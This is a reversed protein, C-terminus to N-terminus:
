VNSLVFKRVDGFASPWIYAERIQAFTRLEGCHSNRLSTHYAQIIQPRLSKPAVTQWVVSSHRGKGKIWVKMLIGEHVAYNAQNDSAWEEEATDQYDGEEHRQIAGKIKCVYEDDEQARQMEAKTSLTYIAPMQWGVASSALKYTEIIEPDDDEEAEYDSDPEYTGNEMDESIQQVKKVVSECTDIDEMDVSAGRILMQMHKELKGEDYACPDGQMAREAPSQLHPPVEAVLPAEGVMDDTELRKVIKETEENQEEADIEQQAQWAVLEIAMQRKAESDQEIKARSMLDAITLLKGPRYCVHLDYEMIEASLRNLCDIDFERGTTLRAAPTGSTAERQLM